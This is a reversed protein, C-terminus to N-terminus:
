QFPREFRPRLKRWILDRYPRKDLMRFLISPYACTSFYTATQKRTELIRFDKLCQMEITKYAAKLSSVEARVWDYYEDPLAELLQKLDKGVSLAEWVSKTSIGTVIRHLEVYRELKVKVRFGNAFRVIYGECNPRRREKLHEIGANWNYREPLPFGLDILPQELGTATEIVALLVLQEVAGYDVVIRNEPYIIEFLYTYRQNLRTLSNRYKGYLLSNAKLAQKSHFSGRSALQPVGDLFYLIGLSGDLKEYVEFPLAPLEEIEPEGLNFFKPLPRAVLRGDGDLILGRCQLTVRNWLREFQAEPSYNYIWLDATSHKKARVYGQELMQNLSARFQEDIELGQM